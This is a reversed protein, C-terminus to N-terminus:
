PSSAPASPASGQRTAPAPRGAPAGPAPAGAPSGSPTALAPAGGCPADPPMVPPMSSPPPGDGGRNDAPLFETMTGRYRKPMFTNQCRPNERERIAVTEFFRKWLTRYYVEEESPLELQLSDVCALRSRGKTYLLMERHTRDYIFFSENAYRNCFHRRLLPLVRNKPEIEAGLVGSYDSFRVFGRLKELEGSMHRLAKVVPAYVEDAQNRLFAPGERFLKRVFAYLHEEKEPMCTLFARRLLEAAQPSHKVISRYVRRAHETQTLVTRVSYLSLVCSEEDGEFAIPFEKYIYSDHVCCLFGDFSGDYQYIVDEWSVASM